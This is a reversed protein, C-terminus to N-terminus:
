TAATSDWSDRRSAPTALWGRGRAPSPDSRRHMAEARGSPTLSSERGHQEQERVFLPLFATSLAGEGFLARALNPIAFAVTFADLVRGNGIITMSM